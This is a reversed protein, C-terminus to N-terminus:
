VLHHALTVIPPSPNAGAPTDFVDVSESKWGGQFTHYLSLWHGVESDHTVTKPSMQQRTLM